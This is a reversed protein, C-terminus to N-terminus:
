GQQTTRGPQTPRSREVGALVKRGRRRLDPPGGDRPLDVWWRYARDRHVLDVTYSQGASPTLDALGLDAATATFPAITRAREFEDARALSLARAPFFVPVVLCLVLGLLLATACSAQAWPADAWGRPDKVLFLVIALYGIGYLASWGAQVGSVNTVRPFLWGVKDDSRVEVLSQLAFSSVFALALGFLGVVVALVVVLAFHDQMWPYTQAWGSGLVWWALVVPAAVLVLKWFAEGLWSAIGRLRRVIGEFLHGTLSPDQRDPAPYGQRAALRGLVAYPSGVAAPLTGLVLLGLAVLLISGVLVLSHGSRDAVTGTDDRVRDIGEAVIPVVPTLLVLAHLVTGSRLAGYTLALLLASTGFLAAPAAIASPLAGLVALAVLVGGFALALLALGRALGRATLGTMGWFGILMGGRLTRTVPRLAGLGARPSDLVTVGVAAATVASRLLLDSSIEDALPERGVGARDFATLLEARDARSVDQPELAQDVRALLDANQARFFEGNSRPNSGDVADAAIAQVLAKMDTAVVNEQVAWAFLGALAPMSPPLDGPRTHAVDFCAALEVAARARLDDVRPDALVPSGAFLADVVEQLTSDALAAPTREPGLGVLYGSLLAARRVRAPQLVTLSLVTAADMRGWMWDNARWSRKLFGGFRSVSMGGLKDDASRSFRISPNVTQASLQVLEVPLGAGSTVEDGLATTAVELQLFRTLLVATSPEDDGPVIVARWVALHADDTMTGERANHEDALRRLVPVVTGFAQVVDEVLGRVVRGASGQQAPATVVTLWRQLAGIVQDHRTARATPDKTITYTLDAEADAIEAALDTLGSPPAGAMLVAYCGLRFAWYSENPTLTVLVPDTDWREDTLGRSEGIQTAKTSVNARAVMVVEYDPGQPLVWILSRVVEAVADAVGKATTVGWNWGPGADPTAERPEGEPVYPLMRQLDAGVARGDPQRDSTSMGPFQSGSGAPEDLWEQAAQAASRVRDFSWGVLNPQDSTMGALHQVRRDSLDRAARWKRLRRYHPFLQAALSELTQDATEATPESAPEAITTLIDTRTSRRGAAVRNHAEVEEVFTRGGQATLAGLLGTMTDRLTPPEDFRDGPLADPAPAHPYVLMMVRRVPGVSPMAQIAKLAYETPTNALLGGDVTFRSHDAGDARDGWSEVVGSMSPRIAKDEATRTSMLEDVPLFTPEFALPFSSSARAALALEDATHEISGAAFPDPRPRGTAPDIQPTPWRSWRLRAAHLEQPLKQGLADTVVLQNANLVTTAMTLDIPAEVPGVPDCPNALRRLAKNLEPLFYDDGRMLSSPAGRFPQRLLTELQGQDLWTDRLSALRARRNVQALALAAGNIGGASTGAIVDTRAAAGALRLLLAYAPDGGAARGSAKILRDLEVVAGGMWVALSVGGNLVVCFRAEETPVPHSRLHTALGEAPRSDQESAQTSMVVGAEYRGREPRFQGAFPRLVHSGTRRGGITNGAIYKGMAGIVDREGLVHEGPLWQGVKAGTISGVRRVPMEAM